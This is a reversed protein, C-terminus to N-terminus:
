GLECISMRMTSLIYRISGKKSRNIKSLIKESEFVCNLMSRSKYNTKIFQCFQEQNGITKKFDLLSFNNKKCWNLFGQFNNMMITKLVYYAFVNTNEKYLNDRNIKAHNTKEYLEKYTLGMFKLTIVMQFFSHLREFNIYFEAASLFQQIDSKDNLEFFSCFLVNMIEAWFETYAEYANVDSNIDFIDLINENLTQNNMMSFDLGFNHFTEHILVKFWEEKRFVVIESDVPCTTTFATNVNNEDLIYVNSSPLRKFLSTFYLYINIKKVCERPAYLNVIYLWMAISEIYKNFSDLEEDINLSEVVFYVKISRDYLSFTYSIEAISMEDIHKRVNEPFSNSNFNKPKTIQSASNIHKVTAKYPSQKKVYNYAELMEKYLELFITKTKNTLNIYNINNNKSFFLMLQRSHKLLKM